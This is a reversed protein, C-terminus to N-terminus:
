GGYVLGEYIQRSAVIFILVCFVICAIKHIRPSKRTICVAIIYSPILGFLMCGIVSGVFGAFGEWLKPTLACYIMSVALEIIFYKKM